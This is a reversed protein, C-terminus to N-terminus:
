MSHLHQLIDKYQQKAYQKASSKSKPTSIDPTFPSQKKLAGSQQLLMRRNEQSAAKLETSVLVTLNMHDETQAPIIRSNSKLSHQPPISKSAKSKPSKSLGYSESMDLGSGFIKIDEPKGPKGHPTLGSSMPTTVVPKWRLTTVNHSPAVQMIDSGIQDNGLSMNIHRRKKKISTSNFSPKRQVLRTQFQQLVPIIDNNNPSMHVEGRPGPQNVAQSSRLVRLQSKLDTTFNLPSIPLSPRANAGKLGRQTNKTTSVTVAPKEEDDPPGQDVDADVDASNNMM